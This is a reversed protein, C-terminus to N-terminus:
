GPHGTRIRGARVKRPEGSVTYPTTPNWGNCLDGYMPCDSCRPKSARCVLAGFDVMAYAYESIQEAPMLEYAKQWLAKDCRPRSRASHIQFVREYVRVFNPDLLSLRIGKSHILAARAIYDGVGKVSLLGELTPTSENVTELYEAMSRLADARSTLGLSCIVRLLIRRRARSMSDASPYKTLLEQYVPVVKDANTKQLLIEAVLLPYLESTTRWPFPRNNAGHWRHLRTHFEAIKTSSIAM